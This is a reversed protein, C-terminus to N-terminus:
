RALGLGLLTDRPNIVGYGTYVDRGTPPIDIAFQKMAAEIAAPSTIGQSVLLAAFGAVHPTAMSTGQKFDYKFASLCGLQTFIQDGSVFAPECGITQQLIGYKEYLRQDGGPAALEVYSLYNSYPARELNYGLAAVAVVGDITEAYKAPYEIPNVRGLPDDSGPREAENGAAIAIFVGKDVAYRLADEVSTLPEYTGLSMNIVHAGNDAAYRTAQALRSAFAAKDAARSAPFPLGLLYDLLGPIVKLPMISVNYAMGAVGIKNNTRQGITGAVHTGHGQYDVPYKGNWVFDYPSVFNTGKLDPAAKVAIVDGSPYRISGDLFAVGSDAIAVVVDNSAGPNIDWALEMDLKQLNWQYSYYEDNPTFLLHLLPDPESYVIGPRGALKKAAAVPDLGEPLSVYHFDAFEPQDLGSAGIDRALSQMSEPSLGPAFKVVIHGAAYREQGQDSPVKQVPIIEEQSCGQFLVGAMLLLVPLGIRRSIVSTITNRNIM